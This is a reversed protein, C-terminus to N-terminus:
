ETRLAEIPEQRSARFAPYVGAVLGIVLVFLLTTVVIRPDFTALQSHSNVTMFKVSTLASVVIKEMFGSGGIALILGVIGGATSMLLTELWVLSFIHVKSAGTARM